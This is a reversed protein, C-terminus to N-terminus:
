FSFNKDISKRGEQGRGRKTFYAFFKAHGIPTQPRVWFIGWSKGGEAWHSELHGPM